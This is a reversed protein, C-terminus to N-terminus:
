APLLDRGSSFNLHLPLIAAGIAPAERGVTGRVLRPPPRSEPSAQALAAALRALLRDLLPRPLSGDVVVVTMDLVRVASLLPLVLADAADM